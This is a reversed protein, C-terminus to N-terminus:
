QSVAELANVIGLLSALPLDHQPGAGLHDEPEEGDHHLMPVNPLKLHTSNSQPNSGYTDIRVTKIWELDNIVM